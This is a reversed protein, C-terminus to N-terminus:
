ENEKNELEEILNNLKENSKELGNIRMTLECNKEKTENLEKKVLNLEDELNKMKLKMEEIKADKILLEEKLKKIDNNDTKDETKSFKEEKEPPNEVVKSKATADAFFADVEDDNEDKKIPNNGIKTAADADAFFADVEDDNEDKKIPNDILTSEVKKPGFYHDLEENNENNTIPNNGVKTNATADAFFENLEDDNENNEKIGEENEDKKMENSNEKVENVSEKWKDEGKIERVDKIYIKYNNQVIENISKKFLDDKTGIVIKNNDGSRLFGFLYIEDNNEDYLSLFYDKLDIYNDPINNIIKEEEKYSLIINKSM